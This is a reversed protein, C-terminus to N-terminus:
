LVKPPNEDWLVTIKAAMQQIEHWKPDSLIVSPINRESDDSWVYQAYADVKRNFTKQANSLTDDMEYLIHNQILFNDVEFDDYSMITEDFSDAYKPSLGNWSIYQIYSDSFGKIESYISNLINQVVVRDM